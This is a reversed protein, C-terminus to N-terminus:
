RKGDIRTRISSGAGLLLEVARGDEDEVQGAVGEPQREGGRGALVVAQEVQDDEAVRARELREVVEPQDEAADVEVVGADEMAPDAADSRRAVLRDRDLEVAIGRPEEARGARAGAAAVASEVGARHDISTM